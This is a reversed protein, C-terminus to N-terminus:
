GRRAICGPFIFNYVKSDDSGQGPSVLQFEGSTLRWLQIFGRPGQAQEIVTNVQPTALVRAIERGTTVFLDQGQGRADISIVEIWGNDRCFLAASAQAQQNIRGDRFAAGGSVHAGTTCNFELRTTASRGSFNANEYAIFDITLISNAPVSYATSVVVNIVNQGGLPGTVDPDGYGAVQGVGPASISFAESATIGPAINDIVTIALTEGVARTCTEARGNFPATYGGFESAAASFVGMTLLLLVTLLATFHKFNM